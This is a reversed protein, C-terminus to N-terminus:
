TVRRSSQPLFLFKAITVIFRLQTCKMKGCCSLTRSASIHFNFILFVRVCSPNFLVINLLKLYLRCFFGIKSDKYIKLILLM